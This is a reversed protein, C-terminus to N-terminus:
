STARIIQYNIITDNGPNASFTVTLTNNTVVAQNVTVNATGDDVVQVFAIDTAAVAGTVTFAEAAAGGVTTVKAAYVIIHSPTITSALKAKTVANAAIGATAITGFGLTTGSVRLVDGDTGTIAASVGASNASRGVVSLGAVNQIKAYTVAADVIDATNVEGSGIPGQWEGTAADILLTSVNTSNLTQYLGKNAALWLRGVSM